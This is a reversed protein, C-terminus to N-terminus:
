RGISYVGGHNSYHDWYTTEDGEDMTEPLRFPDVPSVRRISGNGMWFDATEMEFDATEDWYFCEFGRALQWGVVDATELRRRDWIQWCRKSILWSRKRLHHWSPAMAYLDLPQDGHDGYFILFKSWIGNESLALDWIDDFIM